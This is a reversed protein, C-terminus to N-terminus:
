SLSAGDSDRDATRAWFEELDGSCTVGFQTLWSHLDVPRVREGARVSLANAFLAVAAHLQPDTRRARRRPPEPPDPVDEVAAILRNLHPGDQGAEIEVLGVWKRGDRARISEYFAALPDFDDSKTV